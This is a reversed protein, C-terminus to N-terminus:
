HFNVAGRARLRELDAKREQRSYRRAKEERKQEEIQLLTWVYGAHTLIRGGAHRPLKAAAREISPRSIPPLREIMRRFDERGGFSRQVVTAGTDSPISVVSIELLESKRFRQGGRPKKPDLPEATSWDPDFGISIGRLIGAKTMACCQDAVVSIGPPAFQIRAALANGVVGLSTATGVPQSSDHQYLVIPVKRYNTLDLGSIEIIHGDRAVNGTAAIVGIERPGLEAIDGSFFRQM